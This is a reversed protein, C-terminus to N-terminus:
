YDIHLHCYVNRLAIPLRQGGGIAILFGGAPNSLVHPTAIQLQQQPLTLGEFVAIKM